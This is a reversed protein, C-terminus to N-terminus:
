NNVGDSWLDRSHCEMVAQQLNILNEFVNPNEEPDIVPTHKKNTLLAIGLNYAPDIITVTRTWGTHGYANESAHPGVDMGSKSGNRRWGLAFTPDTTSPATFLNATKQDFLSINRYSGKQKIHRCYPGYWRCQSCDPMGLCAMWQTFRKEDHVEKCRTQASTLPISYRQWTNGMRNLLQSSKEFNLAEKQLPNYPTSWGSRNTSSKSRTSMLRNAALKEVICGLLMYGIDSYVHKTRTQYDLPIKTLRVTKDQEQSYYKGHSKRRTHLLKIPLGSQHQLVCHCTDQRKRKHPWGPQIRSVRCYATEYVGNEKASQASCHLFKNRVNQIQLSLWVDSGNQRVACCNQGRRVKVTAMHQKKIIRGDKVVVLVAGTFGAPLIRKDDPDVKRLKKTLHSNHLKQM